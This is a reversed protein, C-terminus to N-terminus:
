VFTPVPQDKQLTNLKLEAIYNITLMNTPKTKNQNLRVSCYGSYQRAPETANIVSVWKRREDVIILCM